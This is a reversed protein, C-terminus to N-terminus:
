WKSDTKFMPDYIGFNIAEYGAALFLIWLWSLFYIVDKTTTRINKSSVSFVYKDGHTITSVYDYDDDYTRIEISKFERWNVSATTSLQETFFANKFIECFEYSFM